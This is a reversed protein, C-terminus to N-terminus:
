KKARVTQTRPIVVLPVMLMPVLAPIIATLPFPRRLFLIVLTELVFVFSVICAFRIFASKNSLESM